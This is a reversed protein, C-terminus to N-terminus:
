FSGRYIFDQLTKGTGLTGSGTSAHEMYVRPTSTDGGGVIGGIAKAANAINKQKRLKDEAYAQDAESAFKKMQEETPAVGDLAAVKQDIIRKTFADHDEMVFKDQFKDAAESGAEKVADWGSSLAGMFGGGEENIAASKDALAKNSLALDNVAPSFQGVPLANPPAFGVGPVPAVPSSNQTVDELLNKKKKDEDDDFLIGSLGSGADKMYGMAQSGWNSFDLM